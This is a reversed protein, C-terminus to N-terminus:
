SFDVRFAYPAGHQDPHTVLTSLGARATYRGGWSPRHFTPADDDAPSTQSSGRSHACQAFATEIPPNREDRHLTVFRVDPRWQRLPIECAAVTEVLHEDM